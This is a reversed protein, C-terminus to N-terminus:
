RAATEALEASAAERWRGRWTFAAPAESLAPEQDKPPDRFQQRYLTAYLGNLALLQTHNGQEVLRGHDIVLIVDASLITSLRHAIVISTRGQMLPVLAAQILAESTSDLASTAEDLILISPDKLLARAIALRQKEGGSLRYGREGVVTEYGAPLSAIFDHINAARAAAIVEAETAGPKAYRLNEMITTHFLFTEQTVMALQAGLSDLTVQRVDKGDIEVAGSDPDYFRPVLTTLTTKGAGSPGVLAVLQGPQIDFSIHDVAPRDAGAYSFTVDRFTVRGQVPPLPTAGAEDCVDPTMDLYEFIRDFVGLAGRLDVYVNALNTVPRYLNGLYAVFAVVTGITLSSSIVLRGGYWYILAPGIASLVAMLMYFWRGVMTQRIQYDMLDQNIARFRQREDAQRGFVRTLIFGSISLREEMHATLDAQRQQTLKSIRQRFRGVSRMPAVFAPLIVCALLALHANLAFIVALTSVVTVTSTVIGVLTGTVANQVAGVDNNVRSMIQGTQTQVYFRLSMRQLHAFLQNRLDFMIAQGVRANLYNQLVGVFGSGIPVLIMALLLLNLLRGNHAPLAKDIIARIVLPPVLGIATAAGICLFIVVTHWVYPRLYGAIRGLHELKLKGTSAEANERSM